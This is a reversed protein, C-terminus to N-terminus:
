SCEHLNYKRIDHILRGLIHSPHNRALWYEWEIVKLHEKLLKTTRNGRHRWIDMKYTKWARELHQTHARTVPDVFNRKHCVTHHDYGAQTLARRYARWEDTIISSGRRVHKLINPLLENKSRRRVVKLIPKRRTQEVELIGLVWKKNRRWASGFRGRNYKRKHSFKSEDILVFCHHGGVKMQGLHRLKKVARICVKRVVATMRSLTRSSSAVGDEMLDIQRMRLGQSFRYIFEVHNQLSRRSQYFITNKRVTTVGRCRRCVRTFILIMSVFREGWIDWFTSTQMCIKAIQFVHLKGIIDM